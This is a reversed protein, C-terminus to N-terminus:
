YANPSPEPILPARRKIDSVSLSVSLIQQTPFLPAPRSSLALWKKARESHYPSPTRGEARGV